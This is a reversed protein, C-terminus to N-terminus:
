SAAFCAKYAEGADANLSELRQEQPLKAAALLSETASANGAAKEALCDCGAMAEEASLTSSSPVGEKEILGKCVAGVDEAAYAAGALALASGFVIGVVTKKM